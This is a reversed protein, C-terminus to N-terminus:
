FTLEHSLEISVTWHFFQQWNTFDTNKDLSLIRKDTIVTFNSLQTCSKAVGHVTAEWTGGDM